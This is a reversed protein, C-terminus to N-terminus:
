QRAMPSSQESPLKPIAARLAQELCSWQTHTAPLGLRIWHPSYTFVRAWIGAEALLHHLLRADEIGILRFLATGGIVHLGLGTLMHDLKRAEEHLRKRMAVGWAHDSLATQGIALAPGSVAWPGLRARLVVMEEPAGLAFGLRAGALGYFKGFSRLLILGPHGAHSALSVEPHPDAFAEDVVLLGGRAKLRDALELLTDSEFRTGDPNNPNVVVVVDGALDPELVSLVEHGAQAWAIGHESYTPSVIATRGIGRLGPLAQILAQTGPAAVCGAGDPAGYTTKAVEELRTLAVPEPLKRWLQDPIDSVPYAHPNIGTSLDVWQDAAVDYRARAEFLDGGHDMAATRTLTSSICFPDQWLTRPLDPQQEMLCNSCVNVRRAYHPRTIFSTVACGSIKRTRLMPNSHKSHGTDWFHLKRTAFSTELDLLGAMAHRTGDADVLGTGLTMYGGCEGFVRKGAKAADRLGKLFRGAGALKGAYLEPYGGPLYVADASDEPTEDQLPSFPLIEAGSARWARQIHPYAFGFAADRALAIRQGLPPLSRNPIPAAARLPGAAGLIADIDCHESVAEAAAAIIRELGDHEQAQVLGLHRSPLKAEAVHPLMGFVPLGARDLGERLIRAHRPGAVCNLIVGVVRVKKDFGAFGAAVAGVSQGTGSANVVLVVPWSTFRALDATSGNGLQGPSVGGDFLGMVGEAIVIDGRTGADRALEAIVGPRMAWGDLTMCDQGSAAEHFRPDIYDPGIKAPVPVAGRRLVASLLGLTITTKGAGSAPAAIILGPAAM